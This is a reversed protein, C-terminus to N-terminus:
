KQFFDIQNLFFFQEETAELPSLYTCGNNPSITLVYTNCCTPQLVYCGGLTLLNWRAGQATEKAVVVTQQLAAKRAPFEEIKGVVYQLIQLADQANASGDGSVDALTKEQQSPSHKGVTSKLVLLADRTNPTGDQDVDGYPRNAEELFSPQATLYGGTESNFISYSGDSNQSLDWYQNPLREASLSENDAEATIHYGMQSTLKATLTKGLDLPESLKAPDHYDKTRELICFGGVTMAGNGGSLEDASYWLVGGLGWNGRKESPACDIVLFEDTDPNYDALCIFHGPVHAIAVADAALYSKLQTHKNVYINNYSSGDFQNEKNWNETWPVSITFGYQKGFQKALPPTESIETGFLYYRATGGGVKGNFADISYAYAAISQVAFDAKETTDFVGNLYNIANISSLIGCGTRAITKGGYEYYRWPYANQFYAIASLDDHATDAKVMPTFCLSFAIVLALFAHIKQKM